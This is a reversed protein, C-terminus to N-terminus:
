SRLMKNACYKKPKRHTDCTSIKVCLYVYLCMYVCIYICVCIYIIVIQQRDIQRDIQRDEWSYIYIYIYIYILHFCFIFSFKHLFLYFVQVILVKCQFTLVMNFGDKLFISFCTQYIFGIHDIYKKCLRFPCQSTTWTKIKIKFQSVDSKVSTNTELYKWSFFSLREPGYFVAM